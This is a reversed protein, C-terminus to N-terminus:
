SDARRRLGGADFDSSVVSHSRWRSGTNETDDTQAERGAVHPPFSSFGIIMSRNSAHSGNRETTAVHLFFESMSIIHVDQVGSINFGLSTM